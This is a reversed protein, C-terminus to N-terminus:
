RRRQSWAQHYDPKIETGKRLTDIALISRKTYFYALGLDNYTDVDDPKLEIVKKYAEIAQAYNQSEFYRDGISALAEPDNTDAIVQEMPAIRNPNVDVLPGAPSTSSRTTKRAKQAPKYPDETTIVVVAIIVAVLSIIGAIIWNKYNQSPM